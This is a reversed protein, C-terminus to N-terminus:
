PTKRPNESPKKQTLKKPLNGSVVGMLDFEM